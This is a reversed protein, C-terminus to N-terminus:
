EETLSYRSVGGKGPILKGSAPASGGYLAGLIGRKYEEFPPLKEGSSKRLDYSKALNTETQAIEQATPILGLMLKRVATDQQMGAVKLEAAIKQGTLAADQALKKDLQVDSVKAGYEALDRQQTRGAKADAARNAIDVNQASLAEYRTQAQIIRDTGREVAEQNGRLDARAVNQQEREITNAERRLEKENQRLEKQLDKYSAVGKMAGQGINQLAYPSSGGAIGLGAELAAMWANEKGSGALKEKEAAVDALQQSYIDKIGAAQAEQARRASIAEPSYRDQADMLAKRSPETEIFQTQVDPAEPLTPLGAAPPAASTRPTTTGPGDAKPQAAGKQMPIDSVSANLGEYGGPRPVDMTATGALSRLEPLSMSNIRGMIDKAQQREADSQSSFYGMVGAKPAFKRMVAERLAAAESVDSYTGGLGSIARGFPSRSFPSGVLSGDTNGAYRPVHGGEDFAVIGGGAMNHEQFMHDPVDLDALGGAAAQVVPQEQPAEQPQQPAEQPQGQPAVSGLGQELDEAVTSQPAQTQSQQYEERMAKRRQLEGLVLYQPVQGNPSQAYQILANDPLGKLDDQLKLINAM